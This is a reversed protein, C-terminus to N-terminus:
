HFREAVVLLKDLFRCGILIRNRTLFGGERRERQLAPNLFNGLRHCVHWGSTLTRFLCRDHGDSKGSPFLVFPLLHNRGGNDDATPIPTQCHADKCHGPHHYQLTQQVQVAADRSALHRRCHLRHCPCLPHYRNHGYKVVLVMEKMQYVQNALQQVVPVVECHVLLYNM